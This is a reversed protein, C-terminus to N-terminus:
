FPYFPSQRDNEWSKQLLSLPHIFFMKGFPSINNKTLSEFLMTKGLAHCISTLYLSTITFLCPCIHKDLTFRWSYLLYLCLGCDEDVLIGNKLNKYYGYCIRIMLTSIM